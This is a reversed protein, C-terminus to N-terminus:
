GGPRRKAPQDPKFKAAKALGKREFRGTADDRHIEPSKLPEYTEMQPEGTSNLHERGYDSRDRGAPAPSLWPAPWQCRLRHLRAARRQARLRRLPWDCLVSILNPSPPIM